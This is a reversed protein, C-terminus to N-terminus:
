RKTTFIHLMTVMCSHTLIYWLLLILASMYELLPSSLSFPSTFIHVPSSVPDFIPSPTHMCRSTVVTSGVSLVNLLNSPHLVFTILDLANMALHWHCLYLFRPIQKEIFISLMMQLKNHIISIKALIHKGNQDREVGQM